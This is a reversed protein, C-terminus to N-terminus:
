TLDVRITKAASMSGFEATITTQGEGVATVVGEANITVVAQNGSTWRSTSTRDQMTGDAYMVFASLRGTEGRGSLTTVGSITIGTAAAPNAAPAPSTAM